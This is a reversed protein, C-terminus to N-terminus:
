TKRNKSTFWTRNSESFRIIVFFHFKGSLNLIECIRNQLADINFAPFIIEFKSKYFNKLQLIVWKLDDEPITRDEM